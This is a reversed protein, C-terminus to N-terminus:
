TTINSLLFGAEKYLLKEATQHRVRIVDGRVTEDRYSEVRGDIASGDETWHFTRGICPERVDATEAVKCIMAYEGSWIQSISAAKGQKATNKSGGAVLIYKLDFVAALQAATIDEARVRDGSGNASVREIIQECLRLNRFVLRNIVLANAWLGSNGYMKRVAGEVDEIPKANTADDWENAVGGTLSAGEWTTPNFVQAAVRKEQNEIVVRQARSTSIVEADFYHRYMKAENDDVPEEWGNEKTHYSDPEFTWKGRNYGSGPARATEHEQLLQELPIRSFEGAAESVDIVPFVQQGIFGKADALSDFEELSAALDPRLTALSSSPAPM